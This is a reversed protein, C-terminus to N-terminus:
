HVLAHDVLLLGHAADIGLLEVGQQVGGKVGLGQLLGLDHALAQGGGGAGGAAAHHEGGLLGLLPMLPALLDDQDAQLGRGLVDLAHLDGLADQGDAAAHGRM